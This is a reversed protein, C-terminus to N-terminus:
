NSLYYAPDLELYGATKDYWDDEQMETLSTFDLLDANYLTAWEGYIKIGDNTAYPCIEIKRPDAQAPFCLKTQTADIDQYQEKPNVGYNYIYYKLRYGQANKVPEFNITVGNYGPANVAWVKYVNTQINGVKGLTLQTTTETTTPLTTETTTQTQTESVQSTETPTNNKKETSQWIGIGVIVAIVIIIIALLVKGSNKQNSENM